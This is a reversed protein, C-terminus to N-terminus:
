VKKIQLFDLEVITDRNFMNVNVNIKENSFNVNVVKGEFNKLPGDIIKVNDGIKIDIKVKIKKEQLYKQILSIEAETVPIPITGAGIVGTIKPTSRVIYWSENDVIMEVLIYGPYIKEKIKVRKNNIIKIKKEKPVLINFIKYEMNLSKTRQRLNEAAIDEYGSYTHLAYWKRQPKKEEIKADTFISPNERNSLNNKNLSIEKNELDTM